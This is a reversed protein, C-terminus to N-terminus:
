QAKSNKYKFYSKYKLEIVFLLELSDALLMGIWFCAINNLGIRESINQDDVNIM